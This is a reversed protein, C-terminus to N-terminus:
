LFIAGKFVIFNPIVDELTCEQAKSILWKVISGSSKSNLRKRSRKSKDDNELAAM